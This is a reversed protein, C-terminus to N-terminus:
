AMKRGPCYASSRIGIPYSSDPLISFLLTLSCINTPFKPLQSHLHHISRLLGLQLCQDKTEVTKGETDHRKVGDNECGGV